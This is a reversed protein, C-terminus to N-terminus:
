ESVNRPSRSCHMVANGTVEPFFLFLVTQFLFDMMHLSQMVSVERKKDCDGGGGGGGGYNDDDYDDDTYCMSFKVYLEAMKRDSM